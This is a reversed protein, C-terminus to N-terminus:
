KRDRLTTFIYLGVFVFIIGIMYGSTLFNFIKAFGKINKTEKGIIQNGTIKFNKNKINKRRAQFIAKVTKRLLKSIEVKPTDKIFGIRYGGNSNFLVIDDSSYFDQKKIILLDNKNIDPSMNDEIVHHTTYGFLFPYDTDKLMGIMFCYIDYILFISLIALIVLLMGKIAKIDNKM